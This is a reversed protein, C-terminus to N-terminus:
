YGAPHRAEYSSTDALLPRWRPGQEGDTQGATSTDLRIGAIELFAHGPNTYVTIWRGRGADGFAYFESSDMPATLLDGGHLAFSVTGSCDYGSAYFTGHGGGYVYPFGILRNAAWIAEQVAAPAGHPAAAYGDPLIKAVVGPATRTQAVKLRSLGARHAAAIMHLAEVRSADLTVAHTPRIMMAMHAVPKPPASAIHAQPQLSVGAGKYM